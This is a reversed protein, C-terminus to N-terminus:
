KVLMKEPWGLAELWVVATKALEFREQRNAPPTALMEQKALLTTLVPSQQVFPLSYVATKVVKAKEREGAQELAYALLPLITYLPIAAQIRVATALGEYMHGLGEDLKGCGIAAASLMGLGLAKYEEDDIVEYNIISAYLADYAEGYAQQGLSIWGRSRNLRGMSYQDSPYLQSRAMAVQEQALDYRGLAAHTEALCALTYGIDGSIRLEQAAQYGQELLSVATEVRGELWNVIGLNVLGYVLGFSHGTHRSEAIARQLLEIARPFEGLFLSLYSQNEISRIMEWVDGNATAFAISEDFRKRAEEYDMMRRAIWGLSTMAIATQRQNGSTRALALSKTYWRQADEHNGLDQALRGLWLLIHGIWFQDGLQEFQELGELLLKQGIVTRQQHAHLKAINVQHMASVFHLQIGMEELSNILDNLESISEEAIELQELSLYLVSLYLKLRVYIRQGSEEQQQALPPIAKQFLDICELFRGHTVFYVFLGDIAQGVSTIHREAVATKWALRINSLDAEIQAIMALDRAGKLHGENTKLWRCFYQSHRQWITPKTTQQQKALKEMGYQQLLMHFSYRDRGRRYQLLSKGVLTSLMRLSAGAVAQAAERTFGGRFVALQAFIQQQELSLQQWSYDFVARISRHRDALDRVETELFDIGEQIESAITALPLMDVWSAALELGLPLGGVAQCIQALHPLDMETLSFSPAVRRASQLFLAGAADDDVDAVQHWSPATFGQIPFVQEGQLRLRERSTALITLHPAAQLLNTVIFAGELLHEFNDLILLLKKAGWYRKLQNLQQPEVHAQAFAPNGDRWLHAPMSLVDALAPMIQDVAHLRALSIFFIGDPFTTPASAMIQEAVALSLRTKGMGGPGIITLLPVNPDCLLEQVAALETFRGIFPTTQSPLNHPVATKLVTSSVAQKTKMARLGDRISAAIAATEPAPPVMLEVQLRNELTEYLQLAESPQGQAVLIQMLHRYGTEHLPALTILQRALLEAKDLVHKDQYVATLSTLATLMQQRLAERQEGLWQNFPNSDPLYFDPLFDDQYLSVATELQAVTPSNALLEAFMSVDFTLEAEPHLSITQRNSLIFDDPLAQRLKFLTQRLSTQASRPLIDPWLLTMLAERRLPVATRALTLYVLLAQAKASRLATVPQGDRQLKFSGFCSLSVASM